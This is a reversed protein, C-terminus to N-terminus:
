QRGGRRKAVPQGRFRSPPGPRREPPHKAPPHTHRDRLQLLAVGVALLASLAKLGDTVRVLWSTLM